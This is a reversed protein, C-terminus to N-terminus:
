RKGSHGFGGRKEPFPKSVPCMYFQDMNAYFVFQALREGRPLTIEEKGTWELGIMYESNFEFDGTGFHWNFGRKWLSGRGRVQIDWIPEPIERHGVVPAKLAVGTRIFKREGPQFTVDEATRIDWGADTDLHKKPYLDEAEAYVEIPYRRWGTSM